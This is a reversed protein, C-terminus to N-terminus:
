VGADAEAAGLTDYLVGSVIVELSFGGLDADDLISLAEFLLVSNGGFLPDPFLLKVTLGDSSVEGLEWTANFGAFFTDLLDSIDDAGYLLLFDAGDRGARTTDSVNLTLTAVLWGDASNSEPIHFVVEKEYDKGIDRNGYDLGGENTFLSGDTSAGGWADVDDEGSKESIDLNFSQLVISNTAVYSTASVLMLTGAVILAVVVLLSILALTKKNKM